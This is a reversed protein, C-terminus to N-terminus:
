IVGESVLLLLLDSQEQEVQDLRLQTQVLELALLANEEELLALPDPSPPPPEPRTWKEGDWIDGPRVDDDPDLPLMHDSIVEGSLQSVSVCLGTEDIQAYRYM